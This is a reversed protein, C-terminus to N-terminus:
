SSMLFDFYAEDDAQECIARRRQVARDVSAAGISATDLGMHLKLVAEFDPKM